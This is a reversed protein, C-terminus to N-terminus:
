GSSHDERRVISIMWAAGQSKIIIGYEIYNQNFSRLASYKNIGKVFM